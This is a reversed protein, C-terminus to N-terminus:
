GGELVDQVTGIQRANEGGVLVRNEVNKGPDGVAQAMKASRYDAGQEHEDESGGTGGRDPSAGEAPHTNQTYGDLKEEGTRWRPVLHLMTKFRSGVAHWSRRSSEGTDVGNKTDVEIRGIEASCRNREASEGREVGRVGNELSEEHRM